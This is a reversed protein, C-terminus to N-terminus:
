KECFRKHSGLGALTACAKGCGECIFTKTPKETVIQVEFGPIPEVTKVVFGSSCYLSGCDPCELAGSRMSSNNPFTQWLLKKYKPLLKFMAGHSPKSSDFQDTTEHFRGKCGPCVVQYGEGKVSM